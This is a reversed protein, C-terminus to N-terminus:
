KAQKLLEKRYANWGESMWIYDNDNVKFEVKEPLAIPKAQAVVSTDEIQGRLIAPGDIEMHEFNDPVKFVCILNKM